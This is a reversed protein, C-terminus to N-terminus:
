NTAKTRRDLYFCCTAKRKNQFEAGNEENRKVRRIGYRIKERERINTELINWNRRFGWVCEIVVGVNM